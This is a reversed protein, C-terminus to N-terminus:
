RPEDGARGEQLSTSNQRSCWARTQAEAGEQVTWCRLAQQLLVDMEPTFEHGVGTLLTLYARYGAVSLASVAESTPGLPVVPDSDGHFAHIRPCEPACTNRTPLWSPTWRAAIPFAVSIAAPHRLAVLLAMDGGFSFGSIIPKGVTPYRERYVALNRALADAMDFAVAEQAHTGLQGYEMPYWSRGTGRVYPARPLIVRARLQMKEFHSQMDQPEGGGGHLAVILPLADKAEAGGTEFVLFRQGGISESRAINGIADDEARLHSPSLLVCAFMVVASLTKSIRM